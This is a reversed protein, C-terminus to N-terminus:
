QMPSALSLQRQQVISRATLTPIKPRTLTHPVGDESERPCTPVVCVNKMHPFSLVKLYSSVSVSPIFSVSLGRGAISGINIIDGRGGDDRAKFIPLIAQTMNVLGLFNTQVMVSMDDKSINPAQDVGKM